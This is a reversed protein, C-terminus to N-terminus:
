KERECIDEGTITNYCEIISPGLLEDNVMEKLHNLFKYKRVSKEALHIRLDDIASLGQEIGLNGLGGMIFGLETLGMQWVLKFDPGYAELLGLKSLVIAAALGILAGVIGGKKICDDDNKKKELEEKDKKLCNLKHEANRLYESLYKPKEYHFTRFRKKKEEVPESEVSNIWIEIAKLFEEENVEVSDTLSFNTGNIIDKDIGDMFFSRAEMQKDEPLNEVFRAIRDVLKMFKNHSMNYM